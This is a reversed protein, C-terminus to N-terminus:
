LVESALNFRLTGEAVSACKKVACFLPVLSPIDQEGYGIINLVLILVDFYAQFGQVAVAMVRTLGHFSHCLSGTERRLRGADM